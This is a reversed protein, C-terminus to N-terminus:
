HLVGRGRQARQLRRGRGLLTRTRPARWGPTSWVRLMCLLHAGEGAGWRCLGSPEGGAAVATPVACSPSSCRMRSCCCRRRRPGAAITCNPCCCLPARPSRLACAIPLRQIKLCHGAPAHLAPPYLPTAHCTHRACYPTHTPITPATHCAPSAARPRQRADPAIHPADLATHRMCTHYVTAKSKANCSTTAQDAWLCHQGNSTTAQDAWLCHQHVNTPGGM